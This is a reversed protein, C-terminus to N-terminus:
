LSAGLLSTTIFFDDGVVHGKLHKQVVQALPGCLTVTSSNNPHGALKLDTCWKAAAMKLIKDALQQGSSNQADAMNRAYAALSETFRQRGREQIKDTLGQINNETVSLFLLDFLTPNLGRGFLMPGPDFAVKDDNFTLESFFGRGLKSAPQLRMKTFPWHSTCINYSAMPQQDCPQGMSKFFLMEEIGCYLLDTTKAFRSGVFDSFSFATQLPTVKGDIVDQVAHTSVTIKADPLAVKKLEAMLHTLIETYYKFTYANAIASWFRDKEDASTHQSSVYVQFGKATLYQAVRKENEINKLSHLFCVAVNKIEHLQLKSVLFELETDDILKEIHGAANTRENVGFIFERDIVFPQKEPQSTFHPTKIPLNIELWNEFGLTTLVAIPSGHASEIIKLPLNTILEFQSVETINHKTFFQALATGPLGQPYFCRHKAIPDSHKQSSRGTLEMVSEGLHLGISWAM